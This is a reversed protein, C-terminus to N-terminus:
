ATRGNPRNHIVIVTPLRTSGISQLGEWLRTKYRIVDRPQQFDYFNVLKVITESSRNARKAFRTPRM